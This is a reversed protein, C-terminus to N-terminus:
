HLTEVRGSELLRGFQDAVVPQGFFFGQGECGRQAQLFTLQEQTEVGEAIVRHRLKKGMSIMASVIPTGDLDSTIERVFSQDVKLVDIPFQRLYSLSSYGTGFDDIAIRVGQEKLARLVSVTSEAHQMLSSETLELELYKADLGTRGLVDCVNTLFDKDRFEIASINVAVSTPTGADLWARAQRCAERLVWQGVPVILGCDEAIHVFDSPPILGRDPHMWRILAEAGTMQGTELNITPQYHLVFEHRQLAQRLGDEISQRAVARASMDPSFLQYRNRGNKKAQYMATDAAKLLAAVDDGDEPYISAGISVTTHIDHPRVHHPVVLASIIKQASAVADATRSIESLVLVFEDGGQRSVTDSSRACAQLRGAVSQLLRDGIAHGFSDNIHKFQDLDVFFVAVRREHRHALAIAQALRDELLARNPLGTLFDFQALQRLESEHRAATDFARVQARTIAFLMFSLVLGGLLTLGDMQSLLSASGIPRSVVVLWDRGGIEVLGSSLYQQGDPDSGSQSLLAARDKEDEDYLDYSVRPATSAIAQKLVEQANFPSFVYGILARRRAELTAPQTKTRYVPMVLLSTREGADFPKAGMLARSAAPQGTEVAQQMASRVTEDTSLDFGITGRSQATKPELYVVLDYQPRRGPPWVTLPSVGDLDMARVFARVDRNRVRQAYGIGRLGPYRERLQLGAVFGSFEIGSIENSATLLASGARLLDLHADIRGQIQQRASEADSLFETRARAEITSAVYSSAVVSLACALGWLTYPVWRRLALRRWPVAALQQAKAVGTM